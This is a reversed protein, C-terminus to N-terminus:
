DVLEVYELVPSLAFVDLVDRFRSVDVRGLESTNKTKQGGVV